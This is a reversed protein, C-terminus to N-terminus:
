NDAALIKTPNLGVNKLRYKLKGDHTYCLIDGKTSYGPPVDTLYIDGSSPHLSIGFPIRPKTTDTIFNDTIKEGAVIDYSQFNSEGTSNNYSYAWLTDNHITFNLPHMGEIKDKYEDTHTDITHLQYQENGYNGRTVVFLQGRSDAALTFPNAGVPIKKIERFSVPDIVSLTSDYDPFSLGGSNSVYIKNNAITIGDPNRGATTLRTLQLTATDIEAVTGDFSCVYAFQRHFAINRPQRSRGAVDHLTIQQLARGSLRDIVEVQGSINVVIYIKNGYIGIDNATDGLKRKNIIGFWDTAISGTEPAYYALTSNNMDKLGESLIYLGTPQLGDPIVGGEPIKDHMDDCGTFTLVSLLLFVGTSLFIITRKMTIRSICNSPVLARAYSVM